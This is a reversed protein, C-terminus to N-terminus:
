GVVAPTVLGQVDHAYAGLGVKDLGSQIADNLQNRAYAKAILLGVAVGGVFILADKVSIVM